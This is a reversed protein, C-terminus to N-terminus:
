FLSKKLNSCYPTLFTFRPTLSVMTHCFSETAVLRLVMTPVSNIVTFKLSERSVIFVVLHLGCMWGIIPMSTLESYFHSSNLWSLLFPSLTINPTHIFILVYLLMNYQNSSPVGWEYWLYGKALRQCWSSALICHPRYFSSICELINVPAPAHISQPKKYMKWCINSSERNM